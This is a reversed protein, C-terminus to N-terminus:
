GVNNWQKKCTTDIPLTTKKGHRVIRSWLEWPGITTARDVMSEDCKIIAGSVAMMLDVNV